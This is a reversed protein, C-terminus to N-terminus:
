RLTAGSYPGAPEGIWHDDVNGAGGLLEWARCTGEFEDWQDCNALRYRLKRHRVRWDGNQFAFAHLGPRSNMLRRGEHYFGHDLQDGLDRWRRRFIGAGM